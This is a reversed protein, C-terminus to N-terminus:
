AKGLFEYVVRYRPLSCVGAADVSVFVLKRARSTRGAQGPDGLESCTTEDEHAGHAGLGGHSVKLLKGKVLEKGGFSIVAWLKLSIWDLAKIVGDWSNVNNIWAICGSSGKFVSAQKAIEKRSLLSRDQHHLVLAGM